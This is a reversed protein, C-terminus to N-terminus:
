PAPPQVINDNKFYKNIIFEAEEPTKNHITITGDLHRTSSWGSSYPDIQCGPINEYNLNLEELKKEEKELDREL